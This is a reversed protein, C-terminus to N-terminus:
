DYQQIKEYFFNYEEAAKRFSFDLQYLRRRIKLLEKKNYYLAIGRRIAGLMDHANFSYFTFGYGTNELENYPLVTDYLGGTERVIPISAYKMAILQSLGCPEFRSPMLYFDSGAYVLHALDENYGIYTAVNEYRYSMETFFDEFEKDGSGLLVFQIKETEMLENFVSKILELGKQETLRSVIGIVPIKQNIPLGFQKQLAKKNNNKGTTVNKSTYNFAIRDDTEPSWTDYDIGNVIGSYAVGRYDLIHNLKEGFYDSLTEERYKKSVTVVHDSLLIGAKLFNIHYDFIFDDSLEVCLEHHLSLPYIGQFMLNHISLLTKIKAYDPDQKHETKLIYPIMGTHWDNLHIVDPFFNIQKLSDLVARNFFAFREGDDYHGYLESSRYGFYYDNDLFYYPVGDHTISSIGCYKKYHGVQVFTNTIFEQKEEYNQKVKGHNPIMIRADVGLARLEKALSPIVDALGGTKIFPLAESAVLLVKM